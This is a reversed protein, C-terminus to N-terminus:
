LSMMDDFKNLPRENKANLIHQSEVHRLRRHPQLGQQVLVGTCIIGRCVNQKMLPM